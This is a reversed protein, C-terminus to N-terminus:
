GNVVPASFSVSPPAFRSALSMMTFSTRNAASWVIVSLHPSSSISLPSIWPAFPLAVKVM